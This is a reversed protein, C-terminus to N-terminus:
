AVLFIITKGLFRLDNLHVVKGGLQHWVSPFCCSVNYLTLWTYTTELFFLKWMSLKAVQKRDISKAEWVLSCRCTCTTCLFTKGRGRNKKRWIQNWRRRGGERREERPSMRPRSLQGDPSSSPPLHCLTRQCQNFSPQNPPPSPPFPPPFRLNKKATCFTYFAPPAVHSSKNLHSVSAIWLERKSFTVIHLFIREEFNIREKKTFAKKTRFRSIHQARIRM